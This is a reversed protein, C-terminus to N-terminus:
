RASPPTAAPLSVVVRAGRPADAIAVDGGHDEAIEKVIALGLGTGGTARTRADDLRTFREFARARDAAAIGPGDDAVTLVVRDGHRDLEVEVRDDAHRDANHLLNRVLRRLEQPRGAVIMSGEARLAIPHRAHTRIRLVEDAVLEGLELPALPALPAGADARALYLLGQVLGELEANTELLERTLEDWDAREPHARAVELDLRIAALPTQLEHSADAVFRHQRAAAAELRALMENMTEALRRVEDNAAPVPVRRHLDRDTTTAVERRIDEIPQLARGVAHWTVFGVLLLLLPGGIVLTDRVTALTEEVPALSATAYVVAPDGAPRDDRGHVRLGVVRWQEHEGLGEIEVTEARAEDGPVFSAIVARDAHGRTAAIVTGNADVVQVIAGDDGSPTLETPLEGQRALSAIDEARVEAVEDVHAVLGARLRLVLGGAGLASAIAVVLVATATTRVRVGHRSGSGATPSTRTAAATTASADPFQGPADTVAEAGM